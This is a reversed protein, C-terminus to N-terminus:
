GPLRVEEGGTLGSVIEIWGDDVLGTEVPVLLDDGGDRAVRVAPSDGDGVIASVPVAIVGDRTADVLRVEAAAGQRRDGAGTEGAAVAIILEVKAQDADKGVGFVTGTTTTGDAWELEVTDGATWGGADVAYIDAVVIRQESGITLVPSGAQLTDGVSAEHGLVDGAATLFVVDGITVTGDPEARGLDTEWAKVAAATAADFTTDVDLDDGYGLAALNEELQQVDRGDDVGNELTRWAPLDGILAVVPEDDATYLVTGRDAKTGVDVVSTLIASPVEGGDGVDGSDGGDAPQGGNGTPSGGPQFGEGLDPSPGGGAGGDGGPPQNPASSPPAQTTPTTPPATTSTTSPVTTTTTTAPPETTTTPCPSTTTSTSTTSSTGGPTCPETTSTSTSSTSSSTPTTLPLPEGGDGGPSAPNGSGPTLAGAYAVTSESDRQLTGDAELTTALDRPEAAVTPGLRPNEASGGDGDVVTVVLAGAVLVTCLLLWRRRRSALLQSRTGRTLDYTPM